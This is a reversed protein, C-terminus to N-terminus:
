LSMLWFWSGRAASRVLSDLLLGYARMADCISGEAISMRVELAAVNEIDVPIGYPTRHYECKPSLGSVPLDPDSNEPSSSFTQSALFALLDQRGELARRVVQLRTDAPDPPSVRSTGLALFQPASENRTTLTTAPIEVSRFAHADPQTIATEDRYDRWIRLDRVGAAPDQRLALAGLVDTEGDWAFTASPALPREVGDWTAVWQTLAPTQPAPAAPKPAYVTFSGKRYVVNLHPFIWSERCSAWAIGDGCSQATLDYDIPLGLAAECLMQVGPTGAADDSALVCRYEETALPGARKRGTVADQLANLAATASWVAPPIRLSVKDAPVTLKQEYVPLPVGFDPLAQISSMQRSMEEVDQLGREIADGPSRAALRAAWADFKLDALRKRVPDPPESAATDHLTVYDDFAKDADASAKSAVTQAVDAAAKLHVAIFADAKAVTVRTGASSGTSRFLADLDKFALTLGESFVAYNADDEAYVGAYLAMSSLFPQRERNKEMQAAALDLDGKIRQEVEARDTTGFAWAWPHRDALDHFTLAGESWRLDDIYRAPEIRPPPPLGTWRTSPVLLEAAVITGVVAVFGGMRHWEARTFMRPESQSGERYFAYSLGIVVLASFGYWFM